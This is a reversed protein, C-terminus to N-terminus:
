SRIYRYVENKKAEHKLELADELTYTDIFQQLDTDIREMLWDIPVSFNLFNKRTGVKESYTTLVIRENRLLHNLDCQLVDAIKCIIQVSSNFTGREINGVHSTSIGCAEALSKQSMESNMRMRKIQRGFMQKFKVNMDLSTPM